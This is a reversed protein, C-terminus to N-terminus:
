SSNEELLRELVWATAAFEADHRVRWLHVAADELSDFAQGQPVAFSRLIANQDRGVTAAALLGCALGGTQELTVCRPEAVLRHGTHTSTVILNRTQLRAEHLAARLAADVAAPRLRDLDLTLAPRDTPKTM